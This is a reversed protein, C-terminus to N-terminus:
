ELFIAKFDIVQARSRERAEELRRRAWFSFCCKKVLLSFYAQWINGFCTISDRGAPLPRIDRGCAQRFDSAGRFQRSACADVGGDVPLGAPAPARSGVSAQMRRCPTCAMVLWSEEAYRM